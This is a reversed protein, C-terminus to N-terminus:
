KKIKNTCGTIKEKQAGGKYTRIEYRVQYTGNQPLNFSKSLTFVSGNKKFDVNKTSVVKGSSNILKLTGKASDLKIKQTLAVSCTATSGSRKLKARVEIVSVYKISANGNKTAGSDAASCPITSALLLLAIM